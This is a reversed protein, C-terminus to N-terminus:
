SKMIYVGGGSNVFGFNPLVSFPHTSLYSYNHEAGGVSVNWSILCFKGINAHKVTTNHGTYTYDGFEVNQLFNRRNIHVNSGLKCNRAYTDEGIIVGEAFSCEKVNAGNYITPETKEQM